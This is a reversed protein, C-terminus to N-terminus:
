ALAENNGGHTRLDTPLRKVDLILSRRGPIIRNLYSPLRALDNHKFEQLENKAAMRQSYKISM